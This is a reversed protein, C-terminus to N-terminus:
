EEKVIRALRRAIPQLNSQNSGPRVAIGNSCPNFQPGAIQSLNAFYVPAVAEFALAATRQVETQPFCFFDVPKLYEPGAADLLDGVDGDVTEDRDFFRPFMLSAPG